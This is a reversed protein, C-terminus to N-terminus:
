ENVHYPARVHVLPLKKCVPAPTIFTEVHEPSSHLPCIPIHSSATHSICRLLLPNTSPCTIYHLSVSQNQIHNPPVPPGGKYPRPHQNLFRNPSGFRHALQIYLVSVPCAYIPCTM